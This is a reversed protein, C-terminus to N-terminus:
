FNERNQCIDRRSEYMIFKAIFLKRIKISYENNHLFFPSGYSYIIRSVIWKWFVSQLIIM